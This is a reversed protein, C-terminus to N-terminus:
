RRRTGRSRRNGEKIINTKGKKNLRERRKMKKLAERKWFKSEREREIMEEGSGLDRYRDEKGGKNGPQEKIM